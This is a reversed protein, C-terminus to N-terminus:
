LSIFSVVVYNKKYIDLRKSTDRSNMLHVDNTLFTSRSHERRVEENRERRKRDPDSWRARGSNASSEQGENRAVPISRLPYQPHLFRRVDLLDRLKRQVRIEPQRLVQDHSLGLDLLRLGYYQFGKGQRELRVDRGDRGVSAPGLRRLVHHHFHHARGGAVLIDSSDRRERTTCGESLFVHGPRVAFHGTLCM